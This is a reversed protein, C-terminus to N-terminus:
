LQYKFKSTSYTGFFICYFQMKKPVTYPLFYKYNIDTLCIEVNM